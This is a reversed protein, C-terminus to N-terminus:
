ISPDEHSTHSTPFESISYILLMEINYILLIVPELSSSLPELIPNPFRIKISVNWTQQVQFIGIKVIYCQTGVAGM